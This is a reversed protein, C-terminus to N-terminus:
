RGGKREVRHYQSVRVVKDPAVCRLAIAGVRASARREHVSWPIWSIICRKEVVWVTGNM